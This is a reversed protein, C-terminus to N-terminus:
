IRDAYILAGKQFSKVLDPKFKFPARGSERFLALNLDSRKSNLEPSKRFKSRARQELAFELRAGFQKSPKSTHDFNLNSRGISSCKRKGFFSLGSVFNGITGRSSGRHGLKGCWPKGTLKPRAGSATFREPQSNAASDASRKEASGVSLLIAGTATGNRPSVRNANCPKVEGIRQNPQICRNTNEVHNCFKKPLRYPTLVRNKLPQNFRSSKESPNKSFLQYYVIKYINDSTTSRLFCPIFGGTKKAWFDRPCKRAGSQHDDRNSAIRRTFVTPSIDPLHANCSAEKTPYIIEDSAGFRAGYTEHTLHNSSIKKIKM